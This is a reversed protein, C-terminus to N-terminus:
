GTISSTIDLHNHYTPSLARSPLTYLTSSVVPSLHSSAPPLLLSSYDSTHKRRSNKGNLFWYKVIQRAKDLHPCHLTIMAKQLSCNNSQTTHYLMAIILCTAILRAMVREKPTWEGFSRFSLWYISNCSSDHQRIPCRVMPFSLSAENDM